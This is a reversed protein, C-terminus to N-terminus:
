LVTKLTERINNEPMAGQTLIPKGQKPIFLLTPISNIGFRAALEKCNDVNVKYLIIDGNHEAVVKELRPGLVRCPGCWDAYFDVIATKDGKYVFENPNSQYDYVKTRFAEETLEVVWGTHNTTTEASAATQSSKKNQACAPLAITAALLVTLCIALRHKM